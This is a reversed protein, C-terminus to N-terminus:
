LKESNTNFDASTHLIERIRSFETSSKLIRRLEASMMLLACFEAVAADRSTAGGGWGGSGDFDGRHM